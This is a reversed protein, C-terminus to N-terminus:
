GVAVKRWWKNPVILQLRRRSDTIRTTSLGTNEAFTIATSRQRMPVQSDEAYEIDRELYSLM